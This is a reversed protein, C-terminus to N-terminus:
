KAVLAGKPVLDVIEKTFPIGRRQLIMLWLMQKVLPQLGPFRVLLRGQSMSAVLLRVFAEVSVTDGYLTLNSVVVHPWYAPIISSSICCKLDTQSFGLVPFSGRRLLTVLWELESPMLGFVARSVEGTEDLGTLCYDYSFPTPLVLQQGTVEEDGSLRELRLCGFEATVAWGSQIDYPSFSTLGLPTPKGLLAFIRTGKRLVGWKVSTSLTNLRAMADDSFGPPNVEFRHRDGL